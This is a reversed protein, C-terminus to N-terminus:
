GADVPEEQEVRAVLQDCVHRSLGAVTTLQAPGVRVGTETEIRTRFELSALSDLGYEPLPRDQDVTRRLLLSIQDSVLRLIAGLWEDRPLQKLEALFREADPSGQRVSKFAEAFRSRHALATLWPAGSVPAYGSYTRAYRLVADFARAGEAYTIAARGTAPLDTAGAAQAWPGWGIVTASLGQRQRWHGFADLWSDAAATAGHGPSGILAATSSFVCFWDVPEATSGEGLARHLNVAGDVKPAWCHDILDETVEVLSAQAVADVAHLVGRVPLGSETAVAVLRSATQPDAIDGYVLQVDNGDARLREIVQHADSDPAALGNLVLRGCGAAALEAALHLGPGATAGTVIYAGDARYLQAQEPPIVAVAEGAQPADLVLTAGSDTEDSLKRAAAIDLLPQHITPPIPLLGQAVQQYVTALLRQVTHPQSHALVAVDVVHLSLNRRFPLLALWSAEDVDGANLEIFRGGYGLVDIGARRAPGSLCNLVVDVGRGGTDQQIRDAFDATSCDYVHAVGWDRLRQRRQPTDATAFITCGAARAVALAAQGVGDTARHILVTDTAAIRALDHLALWATAYASPLAAAESLPVQAPLTAALRADCTVFASLQGEPSIGAVHDGVQHGTVDAGVAAVVGAFDALGGTTATADHIAGTATVAVEIQGTAPATRPQAVLEWGAGETPHGWQLRVGDRGHEVVTTRRDAPGFPGPRLRATHWTGARWATEDEDSGSHVQAAVCAAVDTFDTAAGVTDSDLDIATVKLHPHEADIVRMLGRLGAQDLNIRDGPQVSAAGRTVVYLRPSEGPLAAMQKVVQLLNAMVARSRQPSLAGSDPAATVLVVGSRGELVGQLADAPPGGAQISVVDSQGQAGALAAALGTALPDAADATNLLLWRGSGASGADPADRRLWEITLLREDLAREAAEREAGSTVFRLGEARLLVTGSVDLLELDAEYADARTATVTSLCYRADRILHHRRLRRVGVPRLAAGDAGRPVDPRLVVSHICAELLAPHIDYLAQQSRLPGPLTIEALATAGVIPQASGYRIATLGPFGRGHRTGHGGDAHHLDAEAVRTPHAALLAAIDRAAPPGVDTVAHLVATACRLREREQHTTVTFDLVGPVGLVAGSSVPTQEDLLLPQSFRLDRVEASEGLSMRAAVLAMEGYAAVPLTATNNDRLDALWPHAVTGADGQWVHREPEELLHVHAGLLPHVAQVAAGRPTADASERSLLLQRHDWSPLPAEVLRGSPYHAAFDIATGVSHLDAVFGRLGNWSAAEPTNPAAALAAIPTDLSVANQEIAAALDSRPALEGFVRFGDKIAAQVAAAFRATYRLNEAWYAGDFAPRDRPAWLTASFYPVEPESPQLDSLDRALDELIPEVQPSHAAVTAAVEHAAVGQQQWAAVLDRVAEADGGITTSVPSEVVALVAGSVDRISFESLVQQAPLEVTAMAGSGAIRSLLRSRRATVIIGDRLTLGGAVVAAAVEGLSHGIVAGPRVGYAKMADALGVQIAFSILHVREIEAPPVEATIAETLSFGSEDAVLPEMAAIAAAFAPEAVLLEAMGTWRAILEAFVWVPGHGDPGVAPHYPLDNDAIGRLAEGLEGFNSAAVTTRIPRHSRGRALTYGLDALGADTLATGHEEIWDALRASTQRLQQASTASIPFLLEPRPDQASAPPSDPLVPVPSQEVIVHVNTGSLGHASVAARRPHDAPAPWPSNEQPVVLNTRVQALQDPLRTFNLHEPVTGHAVALIAKLLGLPGSASQCHGFNTKVSGLYCPADAGYVAALGKYEALDADPSGLGHAEVLGVTAPEVGAAALASRYGAIQAQESREAGLGASGDHNAASGRLVALIRNQDRVAEPLRKLLLVVCAEGAVYGDADADFSRCRGTPSLLGQQSGAVSRHPELMVSVGGALALDSEGVQLSQCAQHVAMLGSSCATDVTLAPGHLGLAQSVRASAFSSSTGTFGYPGEPAGHEASLLEYDSHTLGVFVGTQSRALTAPDLGAHEVAEWSTELLLRHQPDIAIAEPETMGFFDADFAGVTELFAGWRSVSRGPVGPEPGYYSDADWRDAPVEDIFDDGRLLAQWFRQPSDIGGPLRCALGIVAVSSTSPRPAPNLPTTM